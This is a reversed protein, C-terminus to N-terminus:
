REGVVPELEDLRGHGECVREVVAAGDHQLARRGGRGGTEALVPGGVLPQEARENPVPARDLVGRERRKQAEGAVRDGQPAEAEGGQPRGVAECAAGKAPRPRTREEGAAGGVGHERELAPRRSPEPEHEEGEAV